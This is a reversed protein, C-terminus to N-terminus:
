DAKIVGATSEARWLWFALGSAYLVGVACYVSTVMLPLFPMRPALVLPHIFSCFADLPVLGFIYLSEWWRLGRVGARAAAERRARVEMLLACHYALPLLRAAAWEAPRHLLPLQAYHGAASLILLTRAHLDAAAPLTPPPLATLVLLPPLLAKEHVHYGFAFAALGCCALAHAFASARPRRWTGVLVPLQALLVLAAAAGAGASPLILMSTEGVRGSSGGAGGAGGAGLLLSRLGSSAPLLRSAVAAALRDAFTYLAWANPAWYAHTLGRGFPFLRAALQGLQGLAAFPGLAAAFVALVTAGLTALRRLAAPTALTALPKERLVHHCLLQVFFLPAAFLFLHKFMLLTAFVVAAQLERGSILLGSATLLLGILMGNYQFHVHDMLLLGANLFALAVGSLSTPQRSSAATFQVYSGLLLLSDTAIVTLRQYANTGASEYPEASVRLMGRDFLPAGMALLREFWAFFPPYDLTWETTEDVYWKSLPLQSTIAMWGRHVEFDTSRYSPFLLLKLSTAVLTLLLITPM